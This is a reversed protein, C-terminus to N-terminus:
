CKHVVEWGLKGFSTGFAVRTGLHAYMSEDTRVKGKGKQKSEWSIEDITGECIPLLQFRETASSVPPTCGKQQVCRINNMKGERGSEGSTVPLKGITGVDVFLSECDVAVSPTVADAKDDVECLLEPTIAPPTTPPKTKIEPTTAHNM